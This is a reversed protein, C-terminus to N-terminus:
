CDVRFVICMNQHTYVCISGVWGGLLMSHILSVRTFFREMRHKVAEHGHQEEIYEFTNNFLQSVLTPLMCNLLLCM